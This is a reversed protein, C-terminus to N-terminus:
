GSPPAQQAGGMRLIRRTRWGPIFALLAYLALIFASLFTSVGPLAFPNRDTVFTQLLFENVSWMALSFLWFTLLIVFGVISLFRLSNWMVELSVEYIGLALVAAGVAVILWGAAPFLFNLTVGLTKDNHLYSQVLIAAFALSVASLFVLAPWIVNRLSLFIGTLRFSRSLAARLTNIITLSVQQGVSQIPREYEPGGPVAELVTEDVAGRAALGSLVASLALIILGLVLVGLSILTDIFTLTVRPDPTSNPTPCAGPLAVTCVTVPEHAQAVGALVYAVPPSFLVALIIALVAGAILDGSILDELSPMENSRPNPPQGLARRGWRRLTDIWFVGLILINALTYSWPNSLTLDRINPLNLLRLLDNLRAFLWEREFYAIGIILISILTTTLVAVLRRRLAQHRFVTAQFTLLLACFWLFLAWPRHFIQWELTPPSGKPLPYGLFGTIAFAIIGSIGLGVILAAPYRVLLIGRQEDFIDTLAPPKIEADPTNIPQSRNSQSAVSM